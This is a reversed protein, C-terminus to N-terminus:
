HDANCVPWAGGAGSLQRCSNAKFNSNSKRWSEGLVAPLSVNDLHYESAARGLFPCKENTEKGNKANQERWRTLM